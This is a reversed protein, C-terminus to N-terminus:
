KIEFIAGKECFFGKDLVVNQTAKMTVSAGSKVIVMGEEEDNTVSSGDM